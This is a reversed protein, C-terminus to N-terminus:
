NKPPDVNIVLSDRKIKSPAIVNETCTTQASSMGAAAAGAADVEAGAAAGAASVGAGAAAASAAAAGAGGAGVAGIRTVVSLILAPSVAQISVEVAKTKIIVM